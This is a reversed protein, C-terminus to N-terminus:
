KLGAVFEKEFVGLGFLAYDYKVPDNSDFERLKSTIEEVAQWDNQARTLLGLKRGVNATHVDLPLKLVSTPINKWIGFDVGSNDTRVMWRLYMNLRKAAAGNEINPVHKRTRHEHELELFVTRFYILAGFINGSNEFGKTFVSEMGGHNKYINGISKLFYKCDVGNFTRHKFDNFIEFDSEGSTSIFKYPDNDMLRTLKLSNRIITPRQGWAITATLFGSIEINEKTSFLKPIQVPDTKIFEETNFEIVKQDLFLKLSEHSDNM